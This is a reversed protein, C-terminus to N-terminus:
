LNLMEGVASTCAVVHAGMCGNHSAYVTYLVSYTCWELWATIWVHRHANDSTLREDEASWYTSMGTMTGRVEVHEVVKGRCVM